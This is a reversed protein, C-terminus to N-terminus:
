LVLPAEQFHVLEAMKNPIRILEDLKLWGDRNIDIYTFARLM